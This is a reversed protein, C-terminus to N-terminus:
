ENLRTALHHIFQRTNDFIDKTESADYVKRTHSVNNRWADKFNRFQGVAHNYFESKESVKLSRRRGVAVTKLGAELAIILDGWDCLEVRRVLKKTVRLGKVMVRAGHEVARMLHFVCATNNGTAYCNGAATIEENAGPFKIKVDPGFLEFQLHYGAKDKPIHLFLQDSLDNSIDKKLERVEWLMKQLSMPHDADVLPLKLKLFHDLRETARSLCALHCSSNAISLRTRIDGIEEDTLFANKGRARMRMQIDCEITGIDDVTFYLQSAFFPMMYNNAM